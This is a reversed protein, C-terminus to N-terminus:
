NRRYFCDAFELRPVPVLVHGASVYIVIRDRDAPVLVYGASVYDAPVNSSSGAPVFDEGLSPTSATLVLNRSLDERLLLFAAAAVCAASVLSPVAADFSGAHDRHVASDFSAAVDRLLLQCGDVSKLYVGFGNAITLWVRERIPASALCEYSERLGDQITQIVSGAVVVDRCYSPPVTLVVSKGDEYTDFLMWMRPEAFCYRDEPSTFTAPSIRVFVNPLLEKLLFLKKLRRNKPIPPIYDEIDDDSESESSLFDEVPRDWLSTDSRVGRHKSRSRPPSSASESIPEVGAYDHDDATTHYGAPVLLLKRLIANLEQRKVSPQAPGVACKGTEKSAHRAQADEALFEALIELDPLTAKGEEEEREEIDESPVTAQDHGLADSAMRSLGELDVEDQIDVDGQPYCPDLISGGNKRSTEWENGILDMRGMVPGAHTEELFGLLITDDEM